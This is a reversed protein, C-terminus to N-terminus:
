YPDGGKIHWNQNVINSDIVDDDKSETLIFERAMCLNSGKVIFMKGSFEGGIAIMDSDARRRNIVIYVANGHGIDAILMQGQSIDSITDPWSSPDEFNIVTM